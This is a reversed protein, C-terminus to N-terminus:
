LLGYVAAVTYAGFTTYGVIQHVSRMARSLDARSAANDASDGLLMEPNSALVGLIPLLIMGTAHVWTLARHVRLRRAHADSGESVREPDPAAAALVGATAYLGTSLFSFTLHVGQVGSCGFRGFIAEEPRGGACPGQAFWTDQNLASITGFVETVLMSSWAALAFARHMGVVTRRRQLTDRAQQDADRCATCSIECAGGEDRAAPESRRADNQALWRRPTRAARQALDPTTLTFGQPAPLHATLQLDGRGLSPADASLAYLVFAATTLM